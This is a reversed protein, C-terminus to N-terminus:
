FPTEADLGDASIPPPDPDRKQIIKGVAAPVGHADRVQRNSKVANRLLNKYEPKWVTLGEVLEVNTKAEAFSGSRCFRKIVGDAIKGCTNPEKVFHELLERGIHDASKGRGNFAQAKGFLGYPDIDISVSLVPVGRGLAYGVEQDTWPSRDFGKHLVSILIDCTHLAREIEAQWEATPEIDEHAVFSCINWGALTNKLRNAFAKHEALHSLFARLQGTSRGFWLSPPDLASDDGNAINLHIALDALSGDSLDRISQAVYSGSDGGWRDSTPAGFEQLTIDIETWSMGSLRHVIETKYTARKSPTLAM